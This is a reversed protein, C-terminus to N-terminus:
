RLSVGQKIVESVAAGVSSRDAPLVFGVAGGAQAVRHWLTLLAVAFAKDSAMSGGPGVRRVEVPVAPVSGDVVTRDELSASDGTM